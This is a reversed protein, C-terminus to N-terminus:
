LVPIIRKRLMYWPVVLDVTMTKGLVQGCGLTPDIGEGVHVDAEGRDDSVLLAVLLANM